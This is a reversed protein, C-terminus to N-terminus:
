SSKPGVLPDLLTIIKESKETVAEELHDLKLKASFYDDAINLAALVAVKLSDVAPTNEYVGTMTEDVYQALRKVHEPDGGSRLQYTQNYIKVTTVRKSDEGM